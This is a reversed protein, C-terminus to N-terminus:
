SPNREFARVVDLIHQGSDNGGTQGANRDIYNTACDFIETGDLVAEFVHGRSVADLEVVVGFGGVHVGGGFSDRGETAAYMENQASLVFARGVGHKGIQQALADNGDIGDADRRGFDLLIQAANDGDVGTFGEVFGDGGCGRGRAGAFHHHESGGAGAVVLKFVVLLATADELFKDVCQPILGYM